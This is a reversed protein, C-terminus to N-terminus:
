KGTAAEYKSLRRATVGDHTMRVPEINGAADFTMRDIALTRHNPNNDGLPHRHYVIYYEETGPLHLVSHHGAGTAIQPDSQLITGVREFPGTPSTSKAYAVRYTSDGWDGESWMFYYIGDHKVMFPGEVYHEPTIEKFRTGDKLGIVQKLDPSLRTVNCHGQGGYYLYLSGDDDRFIAPDIPQAGNEFHGILPKGLADIFPGAPSNSIAVALGGPKTQTKQIDNAAFILYYKGNLHIATPAWVAYAAWPVNKVDLVHEHKTWHVLDPSSFADLFTQTLYAKHVLAEKRRDIQAPSLTATDSPRLVDGSYTPYNWYQGAFIHIEPDAYWGQQGIATPAQAHAALPLIAAALLATGIRNM